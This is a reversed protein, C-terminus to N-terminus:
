FSSIHSNKEYVFSERIDMQMQTNLDPQSGHAPPRPGCAPWREAQDTCALAAPYIHAPPAAWPGDPQGPRGRHLRSGEPEHRPEAAGPPGWLLVWSLFTMRVTQLWSISVSSCRWRSTMLLPFFIQCLLLLVLANIFYMLVYWLM